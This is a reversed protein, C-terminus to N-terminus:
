DSIWALYLLYAARKAQAHTKVPVAEVRFGAQELRRAFAPDPGASWFVARGWRKLVRRVGRLGAPSYLQANGKAVMAVPGNDVDLLLADYSERKARRIIEAADGVRVRVRPDDLLAGNLGRLHTRNWAVVDPVLEVVEVVAAAGLGALVSRLTFGLGLGGVLVRATAIRSTGAVGLEGLRRESESMREHMLERGDLSISYAGDQQWLTLRGGDGTRAEALLTRPKM